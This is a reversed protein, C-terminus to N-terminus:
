PVEYPPSSVAEEVSFNPTQAQASEPIISFMRRVTLSRQFPSDTSSANQSLRPLTAAKPSSVEEDKQRLAEDINHIGVLLSYDMIGFSKLVQVCLIDMYLITLLLLCVSSIIAVITHLISYTYVTVENPDM